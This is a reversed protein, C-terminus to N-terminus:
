TTDKEKKNWNHKTPTGYCPKSSFTMKHEQCVWDSENNKHPHAHETPTSLSFWGARHFLRRVGSGQQTEINNMGRVTDCWSLRTWRSRNIDIKCVIHSYNSRVYFFPFFFLMSTRDDLKAGDARAAEAGRWFSCFILRHHQLYLM